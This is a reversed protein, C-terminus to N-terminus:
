EETTSDPLDKNDDNSLYPFQFNSLNNFQCPWVVTLSLLLYWIDVKSVGTGMGKVVTSATEGSHSVVRLFLAITTNLAM